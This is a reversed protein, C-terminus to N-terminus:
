AVAGSLELPREIEAMDRAEYYAKSRALRYEDRLHQRHEVTVMGELSLSPLADSSPPNLVGLEPTLITYHNALYHIGPNARLLARIPTRSEPGGACRAVFEDQRSGVPDLQQVMSYSAVDLATEELEARPNGRVSDIVMDADIVMFWDVGHEAVALGLSLTANRKEVENRIWTRRQPLHHLTLGVGLADCTDTIARTQDIGSSGKGGPMLAYAGDVAIWHDIGIKAGSAITAALM